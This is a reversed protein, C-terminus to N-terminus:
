SSTTGRGDLFQTTFDLTWEVEEPPLHVTLKAGPVLYPRRCRHEGSQQWRFSMAAAMTAEISTTM